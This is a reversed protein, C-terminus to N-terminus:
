RRGERARRREYFSIAIGYFALDCLFKGVAIGWVPGLLAVAGWTLGPRLILTDLGEAIGFDHLMARAVRGPQRQDVPQGRLDRLFIVSYYGVNEGIAAGFAAAVGGVGTSAILHYGIYSTALGALEAWGFRDLWHVIRAGIGGGTGNM